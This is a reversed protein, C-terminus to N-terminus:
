FTLLFTRLELSWTSLEALTLSCSRLPVDACQPSNLAMFLQSVMVIVVVVVVM